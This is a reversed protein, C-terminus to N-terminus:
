SSYHHTGESVDSVHQAAVAGSPTSSPLHEPATPGPHRPPEASCQLGGQLAARSGQGQQHTVQGLSGRRPKEACTGERGFVAGTCLSQRGRRGGRGRLLAGRQAATCRSSHLTAASIPFLDRHRFGLRHCLRTREGEPVAMRATEPISLSHSARKPRLEWRQVMAPLAQKVPDCQGNWPQLHSTRRLCEGVASTHPRAAAARCNRPTHGSPLARGPLSNPRETVTPTQLLWSTNQGWTKWLWSALVVLTQSRPTLRTGLLVPPPLVRGDAPTAPQACRSHEGPLCHATCSQRTEQRGSAPRRGRTPVASLTSACTWRGQVHQGPQAVPLLTLAPGAHTCLSASRRGGSQCTSEMLFGTKAESSAAPIYWTNGVPLWLCASTCVQQDHPVCEPLTEETHHNIKCLHTRNYSSDSKNAQAKHQFVSNLTLSERRHGYQPLSCQLAIPGDSYTSCTALCVWM